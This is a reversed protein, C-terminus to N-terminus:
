CVDLFNVKCWSVNTISLYSEPITSPEKKLTTLCTLLHFEPITSPEKQPQALSERSGVNSMGRVKLCLQSIFNVNIIYSICLM